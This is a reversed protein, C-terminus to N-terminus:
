YIAAFWSLSDVYAILLLISLGRSLQLFTHRSSDTVAVTRVARLMAERLAVDHEESAARAILHTAVETTSNASNTPLSAPLAAFLAAPLLLTIVSYVITLLGIAFCLIFNVRSYTPFSEVTYSSTEPTTGM